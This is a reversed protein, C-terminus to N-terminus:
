LKGSRLRVFRLIADVREGMQRMEEESVVTRAVLRDMQDILKQLSFHGMLFWSERQNDILYRLSQTWEGLAAKFMKVDIALDLQDATFDDPVLVSIPNPEALSVIWPHQRLRGYIFTSQNVYQYFDTSNQPLIHDFHTM